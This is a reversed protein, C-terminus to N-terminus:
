TQAAQLIMKILDLDERADAASTKPPFKNTACRHFELFELTFPDEYTKRVIREQYGDGRASDIKERITMTVPLGKVYPTDYDVRVIKNRSYVEIHADFRPVDIIGSEYSVPFGEYQFLVNWIPLGLSAGVVRSPMGVMERMASFDHVGLGTFLRFMTMTEQTAEVGYEDVLARKVMEEEAARMEAGAETPYDNFRKPYTGSQGVFSSNQGIIDRVRIYEIKDMTGIEKLADTFAEAYRRQYGVFVRAESNKEAAIISDLDRYNMALPKEVFVYKNCQLALIAQVPHFANVNCVVVVDTDPSRILEDPESTTKPTTGAVRKRCHELAQQSVDCIYTIQFHSSLNNLLLIHSVQAVEGLGIIGVKLIKESSTAPPEAM